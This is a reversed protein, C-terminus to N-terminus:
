GDAVVRKLEAASEDLLASLEASPADPAIWRTFATRFVAAATEAALRAPLEAVGRRGLGRALADTLSAMKALEREQLEPTAAVIANRQRALERRDGLASPLVGLATMLAAFPEQEAPVEELAAVLGAELPQSAPFLVERKDSFHRFFTRETLEARQAIDKVTTREFRHRRVVHEGM